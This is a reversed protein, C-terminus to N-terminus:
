FFNREYSSPTLVGRRLPTRITSPSRGPTAYSMSGIPSGTPHSRFKGEATALSPLYEGRRLAGSSGPRATGLEALWVLLEHSSRLEVAPDYVASQWALRCGIAAM